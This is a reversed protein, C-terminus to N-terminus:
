RGEGRRNSSLVEPNLLNTPRGDLFSLINEMAQEFREKLVEEAAYGRHSLLVVNGLRRFPHDMPLPEEDYVDLGAGGLKGQELARILHAESVIPGRATNVLYAGHKMLGIEREGILGRTEQNLPVHITVVDSQRLLAELTVREAGVEHAREDTMTKATAILRTNFAKAIRAVQKGIRGLGIVGVTKGELVRGALAPWAESRMRRDIEPIRRLLAFILGFTLEVTSAGGDGPTAAVAIGRKNLASLDLHAIGRGTQSILKLDPALALRKEGFRTRERILLIAHVGKLAHGLEDDTALRGRLVTVHTRAKLKEYAPVRAALGEYDDFILVRFSSSDHDSM